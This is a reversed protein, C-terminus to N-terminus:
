HWVLTHLVCRCPYQVTVGQGFGLECATSVKPPQIGLEAAAVTHALPNLETYYGYTYATEATYGAHWNSM